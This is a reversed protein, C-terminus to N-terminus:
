KSRRKRDYKVPKGGIPYITSTNQPYGVQKLYSLLKLDAESAYATGRPHTHSILMLDGRLPIMVSHDDGSFLYYKGGGGNKGKGYIYVQAFEVGYKQTLENMNM